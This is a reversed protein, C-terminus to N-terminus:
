GKEAFPKDPRRGARQVLEDMLRAWPPSLSNHCQNKKILKFKLKMFKSM